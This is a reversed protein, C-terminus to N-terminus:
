GPPRNDRIADMMLERTLKEAGELNQKYRAGDQSNVLERWLEVSTKASIRALEPWNAARCIQAARFEAGAIHNKATGTAEYIGIAADILGPLIPLYPKVGEQQRAEHLVLAGNNVIHGNVSAYPVTKLANTIIAMVESAPVEVKKRVAMIFTNMRINDGKLGPLLQQLIKDAKKIDGDRQLYGHALGLHSSEGMESAVPWFNALKIMIKISDDYEGLQHHAWGRQLLRKSSDLVDVNSFNPEVLAIIERYKGQKYLGELEKITAM